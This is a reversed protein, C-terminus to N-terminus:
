LRFVNGQDPKAFAAMVKELEDPNAMAQNTWGKEAAQAATYAAHGQASELDMDFRLSSFYFGPCISFSDDDIRNADWISTWTRLYGELVDCLSTGTVSVGVHYTGDEEPSMAINVGKVCDDNKVLRYSQQSGATPEPAEESTLKEWDALVDISNKGMAEPVAPMVPTGDLFKVHYSCNLVLMGDGFQADIGEPIDSGRMQMDALAYAADEYRIFRCSTIGGMDHSVYMDLLKQLETM